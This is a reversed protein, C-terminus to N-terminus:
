LYSFYLDYSGVSVELYLLVIIVISILNNVRIGTNKMKSKMYYIYNGNM